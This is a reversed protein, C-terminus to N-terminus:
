SLSGSVLHSSFEPCGMGPCGSSGTSVAASIFTNALPSRTGSSRSTRDLRTCCSSVLRPIFLIDRSILVTFTAGSTLPFSRSKSILSISLCSRSHISVMWHNVTVSLVSFLCTAMRLRSTSCSQRDITFWNTFEIVFSTKNLVENVSCPIDVWTWAVSSTLTLDFNLKVVFTCIVSALSTYKLLTAVTKGSRIARENVHDSPGDLRPCLTCCSVSVIRIAQNSSPKHFTSRQMSTTDAPSPGWSVLTIGATLLTM